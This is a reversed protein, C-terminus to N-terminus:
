FCDGILGLSDRILTFEPLTVHNPIPYISPFFFLPAYKKRNKEGSVWIRYCNWTGIIKHMKSLSNKLVTKHTPLM